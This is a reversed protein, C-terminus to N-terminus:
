ARIGKNFRILCDVRQGERTISKMLLRSRVIRSDAGRNVSGASMGLSGVRHRDCRQSAPIFMAESLPPKQKTMPAGVELKRQTRAM